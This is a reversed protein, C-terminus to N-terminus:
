LWGSRSSERKDAPLTANDGADRRNHLFLRPRYDFGIYDTEEKCVIRYRGSYTASYDPTSGTCVKEATASTRKGDAGGWRKM